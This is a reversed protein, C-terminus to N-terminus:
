ILVLAYIPNQYCMETMTYKVGYCTVIVENYVHIHHHTLMKTNDMHGVRVSALTAYTPMSLSPPPPIGDRPM